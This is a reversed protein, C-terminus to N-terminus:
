DPLDKLPLAYATLIPDLFVEILLPWPAGHGPLNPEHFVVTKGCTFADYQM